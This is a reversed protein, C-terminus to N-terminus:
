PTTEGTPALEATISFREADREPEYSVGADHHVAGFLRDAELLGILSNADASLGALKVSGGDISLSELYTHDPLARSLAEIAAVRLTADLAPLESGVRGERHELAALHREGAALRAKLMAIEASQEMSALTLLVSGVSVLSLGALVLLRLRAHRRPQRQMDDERFAAHSTTSPESDAVGIATARLGLAALQARLEALADTAMALIEVSLAGAHRGSRAHYAYSAEGKPWPLLREAQLAVVADLHAASQAPLEISRRLMRQADIRLEVDVPRSSAAKLRLAIEDLSGSVVPRVSKGRRRYLDYLAGRQVVLHRAARAPRAISEGIGAAIWDISRDLTQLVGSM